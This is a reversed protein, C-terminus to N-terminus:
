YTPTNTYKFREIIKGNNALMRNHNHPLNKLITFFNREMITDSRYKVTRIFVNCYKNTDWLNRKNRLVNIKQHVNELVVTINGPRDSLSEARRINKLLVGKMPVCLGIHFM